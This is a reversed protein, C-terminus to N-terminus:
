LTFWPLCPSHPLQTLPLAYNLTPEPKLISTIRGLDDYEVTTRSPVPTKPANYSSYPRGYSASGTRHVVNVGLRVSLSCAMLVLTLLRVQPRRAKETMLRRSLWFGVVAGTRYTRRQRKRVIGKVGLKTARGIEAEPITGILLTPWRPGSKRKKVWEMLALTDPFLVISFFFSFQLRSGSASVSACYRFFLLKSGWDTHFTPPM